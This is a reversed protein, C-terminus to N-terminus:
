DLSWKKVLNDASATVFTANDVWCLDYIGMTHATLYHKILQGTKADFVAITKDASCTAFKSGDPSLSM